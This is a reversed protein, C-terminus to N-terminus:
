GARINLNRVDKCGPLQRIKDAIVDRNMFLENRVVAHSAVVTLRGRDITVPHSYSANATGVLDVWHARITHEPSDRGIQHKVMLEEVLAGLPKAARKVQRRPEDFAVHRLDGILEEALKSFHHPEEPM